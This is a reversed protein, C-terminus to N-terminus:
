ATPTYVSLITRTGTFLIFHPFIERNLQNKLTAETIKAM